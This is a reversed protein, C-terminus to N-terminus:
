VTIIEANVGLGNLDQQIEQKYVANMVIVVDPQYDRLFDPAVIRQGTGAMYMGHKHPNIDVTHEIEDWINLTTLFSVGKSGSGWLVVRKGEQHQAHLYSRWFDLRKPYSESFYKVGREIVEFDNELPLPPTNSDGGPRAEIMLYQDDYERALDLVEFGNRRFLRALSGPSFYSCHEYYIDWFAIDQLIRTVDPIQFFIITDPHGETSRKVTRVFDDTEHIHELTMKCCVFDAKHHAYKESYLDQIFTVNENVKSLSRESVYAPDFGLGRNKGMECLLTLFEGKDCGIEIIDKGHLDYREVLREALRRSFANFTPSFGQTAEYHESYKQKHSEFAVNSIFGCSRCFGLKIEGTPFNVAEDRTPLLMVSHVPAHDKTYFVEMGPAGCSPCTYTDSM